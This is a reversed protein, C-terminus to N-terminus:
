WMILNILKILLLIGGGIIFLSWYNVFVGFKEKDKSVKIIIGAIIIGFPALLSILINLDM